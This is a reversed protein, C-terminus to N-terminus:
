EPPEEVEAAGPRRIIMDPDIIISKPTAGPRACTAILNYRYTRDNDHAKMRKAGAPSEASARYPPKDEYPWDRSDPKRDIVLTAVHPSGTLVWRVEDGQLLSVAYPNISADVAAGECTIKVNVARVRGSSPVLVPKACGAAVLCVAVCAVIANPRM